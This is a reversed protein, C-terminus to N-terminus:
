PTVELHITVAGFGTGPPDSSVLMFYDGTAVDGAAITKM